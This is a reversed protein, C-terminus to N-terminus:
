SLPIFHALLIGALPIALATLMVTQRRSHTMLFTIIASIGIFSAYLLFPTRESYFLCQILLLSWALELHLHTVTRYRAIAHGQVIFSSVTVVGLLLAVSGLRIWGEPSPLSLRTLPSYTVQVFKQIGEWSPPSALLIGLWTTAVAGLILASYHRWTGHGIRQLLIGYAILMYLWVPDMFALLGIGFGINFALFPSRHLSLSGIIYESLFVMMISALSMISIGYAGAGIQSVTMLLMASISASERIHTGYSLLNHRHLLLLLLVTAILASVPESLIQTAQSLFDPLYRDIFSVM